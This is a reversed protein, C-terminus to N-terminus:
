NILLLYNKFDIELGTYKIPIKSDKFKKMMETLTDILKRKKDFIDVHNQLYNSTEDFVQQLEKRNDM